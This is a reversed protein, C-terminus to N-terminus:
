LKGMRIESVKSVESVECTCLTVGRIESIKSEESVM